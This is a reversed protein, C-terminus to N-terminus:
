VPFGGGFRAVAPLNPRWDIDFALTPGYGDLPLIAPVRRAANGNHIRLSRRRIGFGSVRRLSRQQPTFVFDRWYVFAAGVSRCHENLFARVTDAIRDVETPLADEAMKETILPSVDIIVLGNGGKARRGLQNNAKTLHYRLANESVSPPTSKAEVFYPGVHDQAEVLFDPDGDEESPTVSFQQM